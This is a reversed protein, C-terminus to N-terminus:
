EPLGVRKRLAHLRPDGRLFAYEPGILARGIRTPGMPIMEELTDLTRDRDGLAAFVVGKSAPRPMAAAVREADRRRGARAYAVGLSHAGQAMLRTGWQEELVRVADGTKGQRFYTAAWCESMHQDNEAAAQCHFESETFRGAARLALMLAHNTQLSRTDLALSIRLQEIAEEIRALPLLLFMAFHDHWLPDSPALEIALRFSHEARSWQAERAQMMGLADYADPLRSDLRMAKDAFEWGKAIMGAREAPSFRDFASRAAEMAAVGAYGPAFKPDRAIAQEFLEISAEAGSLARRM